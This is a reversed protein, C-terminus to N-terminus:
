ARFSLFAAWYSSLLFQYDGLTTDALCQPGITRLKSRLGLSFFSARSSLGYERLSGIHPPIIIGADM